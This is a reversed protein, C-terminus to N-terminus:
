EPKEIVVDYRKLLARYARETRDRAMAARWDNEVRQRIAALSPPAAPHRERVRVLHQGLGSGVPGSWKGPPLRDLAAAFEDGFLGAAEGAGIAEFRAPLPIAAGAFDRGARLESLAALAGAADTGLYRQDFAYTAEGAFRQPHAALWRQLTADDPAAIDEATDGFTEMKVRMRRRVVEDDRDLGLRLAERYYVEEKVDDRILADLEAASPARRFNQAYQGAIREVRAADIVIRREDASTANGFLAFILAGLIAFHVLPERLVAAGRASFTM